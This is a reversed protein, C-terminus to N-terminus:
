DMRWVRSGQNPLGQRKDQPLPLISIGRVARVELAVIVKDGHYKLDGLLAGTEADRLITGAPVKIYLDDASKGSSNNTRGNGM